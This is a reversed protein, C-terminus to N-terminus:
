NFTSPLSTIGSVLARKKGRREGLEKKGREKKEKGKKWKSSSSLFSSFRRKLSFDRVLSALPPLPSSAHYEDHSVFFSCRNRNVYNVSSSTAQIRKSM